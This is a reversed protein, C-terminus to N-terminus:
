EPSKNNILSWPVDWRQFNIWSCSPIRISIKKIAWIVSWQFQITNRCLFKECSLVFRLGTFNDLHIINRHILILLFVPFILTIQCTITMQIYWFTIWIYSCTTWTHLYTIRIYSYSATNAANHRTIM